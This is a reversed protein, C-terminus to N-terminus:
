YALWFQAQEQYALDMMKQFPMLNAARAGENMGAQLPDNLVRTKAQYYQQIQKNKGQFDILPQTTSQGSKALILLRITDGPAGVIQYTSDAITLLSKGVTRFPTNLYIQNRDVTISDRVSSVDNQPFSHYTDLKIPLTQAQPVSKIHVTLM